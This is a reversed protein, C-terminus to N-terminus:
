IGHAPFFHRLTMKFGFEQIAQMAHAHVLYDGLTM